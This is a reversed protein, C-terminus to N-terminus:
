IVCFQPILVTRHLHHPYSNLFVFKVKIEGRPTNIEFVFLDLQLLNSLEFYHLGIGSYKRRM